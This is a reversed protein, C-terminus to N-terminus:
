RTQGAVKAADATMDESNDRRSQSEVINARMRTLVETVLAIEEDTVGNTASGLCDGSMARFRDVLPRAMDTLYLRYARRDNPNPRREILGAAEMRDVHRSLTIPEMDMQEALVAQSLPQQELLEARTVSALVRWQASTLGLTKAREDMQRRLLRSVDHMLFLLSKAPTITATM